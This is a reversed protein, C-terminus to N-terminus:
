WIQVASLGASPSTACLHHPASDYERDYRVPFLRQHIMAQALSACGTARQGEPKHAAMAYLSLSGLIVVLLTKM